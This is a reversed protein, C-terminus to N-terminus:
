GQFIALTFDDQLGNTRPLAAKARLQRVIAEGTGEAAAAVITEWGAYKWVGDTMAMLTWPSLLRATFPVFVAGRSGVPPNKMQNKTLICSPRDAMRLLVASDGSSGGCLMTETLCFAILTTYGANEADAVSADAQRLIDSWVSPSLLKDPRFSLAKDLCIQCAIAAALAAGAQGGQGDAVACVFCPSVGPVARVEIRDQNEEHGGPETHTCYTIVAKKGHGHAAGRFNIRGRLRM